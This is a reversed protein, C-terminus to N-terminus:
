KTVSFYLNRGIEDSKIIKKAIAVALDLDETDVSFLLKLGAKSELKFKVEESSNELLGIIRDQQTPMNVTIM